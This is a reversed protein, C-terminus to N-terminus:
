TPVVHVLLNVVLVWSMSGVYVLVIALLVLFLVTMCGSKSQKAKQRARRAGSSRSVQQQLVEMDDSSRSVEKKMTPAPTSDEKPVREVIRTGKAVDRVNVPDIECECTEERCTDYPPLLGPDAKADEATVLLGDLHRSETCHEGIRLLWGVFEDKREIGGCKRMDREFERQCALDDKMQERIEKRREKLWARHERALAKEAQSTTLGKFEKGAEKAKAQKAKSANILVSAERKTKPPLGAYKLRKLFALQKDTPEHPM